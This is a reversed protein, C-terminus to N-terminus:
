YTRLIRIANHTVKTIITMPRSNFWNTFIIWILRLLHIYIYILCTNQRRKETPVAFILQNCVFMWFGFRCRKDITLNLLATKRVCHMIESMSWKGFRFDFTDRPWIMKNSSSVIYYIDHLFASVLYSGRVVSQPHSASAPLSQTGHM